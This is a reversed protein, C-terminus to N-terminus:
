GAAAGRVFSGGWLSPFPPCRPDHNPNALPEDIGGSRGSALFVCSSTRAAM